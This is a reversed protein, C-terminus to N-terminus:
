DHRKNNDLVLTGKNWISENCIVSGNSELVYGDLTHPLPMTGLTVM